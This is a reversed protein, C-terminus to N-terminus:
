YFRREGVRTFTDGGFLAGHDPLLASISGQLGYRTADGAGAGNCSGFGATLAVLILAALGKV